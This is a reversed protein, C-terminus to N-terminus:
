ELGPEEEKKGKVSVIVVAAVIAGIVLVGALIYFLASSFFGQKGDSGPVDAAVGKQTVDIVKEVVATGVRQHEEPSQPSNDEGMGDAYNVFDGQYDRQTDTGQNVIPTENKVEVDCGTLDYTFKYSKLYPEAEFDEGYMETVFYTIDAAGGDTVQFNVSVFQGKDSFMKNSTLSSYNMPIRGELEENYIVPEFNDFKISGPQYALHDKDYFLCLDFGVVPKVTESLYLTYTVTDGVKAKAKGNITLESGGNAAKKEATEGGTESPAATTKASETKSDEKVESAFVPIASAVLVALAFCLTSLQLGVRKM